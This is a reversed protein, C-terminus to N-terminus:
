NASTRAQTRRLVEVAVLSAGLIAFALWIIALDTGPWPVGLGEGCWFFGFSTLMVGVAYKMVNEPVRALPAHLVFGAAVVLVLALTTGILASALSSRSAGGVALVILAVELGELFVGNFATALAARRDKEQRLRAVAQTYIAEEDHLAKRGSARLIAKKLWGWGFWILFAGIIIQVWAQPIFRLIPIGVAVIGGLAVLAVITGQFAPRWGSTYMVALVITLAEVMEVGSALFSTTAVAWVNM